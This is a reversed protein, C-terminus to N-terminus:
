RRYQMSTLEQYKQDSSFILNARTASPVTNNTYVGKSEYWDKRDQMNGKYQDFDAKYGMLQITIAQDEADMSNIRDTASKEIDAQTMSNITQQIVAIETQEEKTPPKIEFRSFDPVPTNLVQTINEGAILLQQMNNNAFTNTVTNIKDLITETREVHENSTIFMENDAEHYTNVFAIPTTSEENSVFVIVNDKIEVLSNIESDSVKESETVTELETSEETINQIDQDAIIIDNNEIINDQHPQSEQVTISESYGPCSVDFMPDSKCQMALLADQFGACSTSYLPDSTCPDASYLLNFSVNTIEPGYFGAWYKTDAGIFGVRANGLKNVAYPDTFTESFQFMTWDFSYNLDYMYSELLKNGNNYIDVYANLFGQPNNDFWNRNKAMFSFNFGNVLIGTGAYSLAQQIGITQYLDAMGFSFNISGPSFAGVAPDPGCYAYMYDDPSWCAIPQNISGANEWANPDILNDVIEQGSASSIAILFFLTLLHKM